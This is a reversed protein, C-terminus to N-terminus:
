PNLQRRLTEIEDKLALKLKQCRRRELQEEASLWRYTDLEDLRSQIETHESHLHEIRTHLENPSREAQLQEAVM